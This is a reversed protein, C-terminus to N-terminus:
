CSMSSLSLGFASSCLLRLDFTSSSLSVTLLPGLLETLGPCDGPKLILDGPELDESSSSAALSRSPSSLPERVLDGEVATFALSALYNLLVYALSYFAWLLVLLRDLALSGRRKPIIAASAHM